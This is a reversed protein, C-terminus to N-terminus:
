QLNRVLCYYYIKLQKGRQERELHRGRMKVRRRDNGAIKTLRLEDFLEGVRELMQVGNGLVHEIADGDTQVNISRLQILEVFPNLVGVRLEIADFARFAGNLHMGTRSIGRLLIARRILRDEFAIPVVVLLFRGNQVVIRKPQVFRHIFEDIRVVFFGFRIVVRQDNEPLVFSVENLLGFGVGQFTQSFRRTVDFRDNRKERVIRLLIRLHEDRPSASVVINLYVCAVFISGNLM